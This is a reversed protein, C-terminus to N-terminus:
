SGVSYGWPGICYNKHGYSGVYRGISRKVAMREAGAGSKNLVQAPFHSGASNFSFSAKCYALIM